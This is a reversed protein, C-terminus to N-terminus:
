AKAKRPKKRAAAKLLKEIDEVTQAEAKKVEGDKDFEIRVRRGYHGKLWFGLCTGVVPLSATALSFVGDLISPANGAAADMTQIRMSPKLGHARLLDRFDRIAQQYESSRLASDDPSPILHVRLKSDPEIIESDM